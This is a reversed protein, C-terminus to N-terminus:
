HSAYYCLADYVSEPTPLHDTKWVLQASRSSIFTQDIHSDAPNRVDRYLRELAELDNSSPIAAQWGSRADFRKLWATMAVPTDNAPDISISLLQVDPIPRQALKAQLTQFIAGQLPCTASCGTFVFQIATTMGRLMDGLKRRAGNALVIGIDPMSEAPEIAGWPHHPIERSEAAFTPLSVFAASALM